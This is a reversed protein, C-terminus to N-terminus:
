RTITNGQEMVPAENIMTLAQNCGSKVNLLADAHERSLQDGFSLIEPTAMAELSTLYQEKKDNPLFQIIQTAKQCFDLWREPRKLKGDYEIDELMNNMIENM